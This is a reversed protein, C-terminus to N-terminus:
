ALEDLPLPSLFMQVIGGLLAGAHWHAVSTPQVPAPEVSISQVFTTNSRHNWCWTLNSTPVVRKRRLIRTRYVQSPGGGSAGSRPSAPSRVLDSYLTPHPSYVLALGTFMGTPALVPGTSTRHQCCLGRLRFCLIIATGSCGWLCAMIYGYQAPVLGIGLVPM